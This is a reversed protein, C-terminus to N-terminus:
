QVAEACILGTVRESVEAYIRLITCFLTWAQISTLHTPTRGFQLGDAARRADSDLYEQKLFSYLLKKGASVEMHMTDPSFDSGLERIRWNYAKGEELCLHAGYPLYLTFGSTPLAQGPALPLPFAAAAQQLTTKSSTVQIWVSLSRINVKM